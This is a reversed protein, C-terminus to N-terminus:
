PARIYNYSTSISNYTIPQDLADLETVPAHVTQLTVNGLADYDYETVVGYADKHETRLNNTWKDTTTTRDPATERILRGADDFSYQTTHGREDNFRTWKYLANYDYTQVTFDPNITQFARGNSFYTHTTTGTDVDTTVVGDVTRVTTTITTLLRALPTNSHSAVEDYGYKIVSRVHTMPDLPAAVDNLLGTATSSTYGYNWVRDGLTISSLKGETGPVYGFVLTGATGGVSAVRGNADPTITLQNGHLDSISVM